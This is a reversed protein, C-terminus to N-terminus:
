MNCPGAIGTGIAGDKSLIAAKCSTGGADVCLVVSNADNHAVTQEGEAEAFVQALIGKNRELRSEADSVSVELAIVVAALKTNGRCAVLIADLEDDSYQCRHGAIIRIINRARQQLKINTAKLDVM